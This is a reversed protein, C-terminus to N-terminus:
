NFLSSEMDIEFSCQYFNTTKKKKQGTQSDTEVTQSSTSTRREKLNIKTGDGAYAYDLEYLKREINPKASTAPVQLQKNVNKDENKEAKLREKEDRKQKDFLPKLEEATYKAKYEQIKEWAKTLKPLRGKEFKDQDYHVTIVSYKYLKWNLVSSPTYGQARYKKKIENLWAIINEYKYQINLPYLEVRQINEEFETGNHEVMVTKNFVIIVGKERGYKNLNQWPVYKNQIKSKWDDVSTDLVDELMDHINEYQEDYCSSSNTCRIDKIECELFDCLPLGTVFMQQQMQGYYDPKITGDIIRSYPNKIEVLRGYRSYSNYDSLDVNNVIGDPSAGVYTHTKSRVVTYERVSVKNRSEYIKLAVDEYTNGHVLAPSNSPPQAKIETMKKMCVEHFKALQGADIKESDTATLMTQRTLHWRISKQEFFDEKNLADIIKKAKQIYQKCYKNLIYLDIYKKGAPGIINNNYRFTKVKYLNNLFDQNLLMSKYEKNHFENKCPINELEQNIQSNMEIDTQLDEINNNM